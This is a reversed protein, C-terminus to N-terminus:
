ILVNQGGRERCEERGIERERLQIPGDASVWSAAASFRGSLFSEGAGLQKHVEGEGAASVYRLIHGTSQDFITAQMVKKGRGSRLHSRFWCHPFYQSRFLTTYPFLTDTRTSIPPRRIM